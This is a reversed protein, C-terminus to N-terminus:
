REMVWARVEDFTPGKTNWDSLLKDFQYSRVGTLEITNNRYDYEYIVVSQDPV